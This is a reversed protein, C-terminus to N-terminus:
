DYASLTLNVPDYKSDMYKEEQMWHVVANMLILEQSNLIYNHHQIVYM